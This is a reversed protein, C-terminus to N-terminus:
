TNCIYFLISPVECRCIHQTRCLLAVLFQSYDVVNQVGKNNRCHSYSQLEVSHAHQLASCCSWRQHPCTTLYIHRTASSAALPTPTQIAMINHTLYLSIPGPAYKQTFPSPLLSCPFLPFHHPSSSISPPSPLFLHCSSLPPLM